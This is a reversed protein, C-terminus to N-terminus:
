KESSSSIQRLVFLASQFTLHHNALECKQLFLFFDTGRGNHPANDEIMIAGWLTRKRFWENEGEVQSAVVAQRIIEKLM